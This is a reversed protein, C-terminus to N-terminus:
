FNIFFEYFLFVGNILVSNKQKLLKKYIKLILMTGNLTNQPFKLGETINLLLCMSSISHKNNPFIKKALTLVDTIKNNLEFGLEQQLFKINFETHYYILENDKIFSIFSDKIENFTPYQKLFKNDLEIIRKVDKIIRQKPNIYTHFFIGTPKNKSNVEMATIEVIKNKICDFGTTEIDIVIKNMTIGGLM